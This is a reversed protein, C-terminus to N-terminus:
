KNMWLNIVKNPDTNEKVKTVTYMSNIFFSNWVPLPTESCSCDGELLYPPGTQTKKNLSFSFGWWYCDQADSRCAKKKKKQCFSGGALHFTSGNWNRGSTDPEKNDIVHSTLLYQVASLVGWSQMHSPFLLAQTLVSDNNRRFSHQIFFCMPVTFPHFWIPHFILWKCYM